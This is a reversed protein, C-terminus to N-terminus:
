FGICDALFIVFVMWSGVAMEWTYTRYNAPLGNTKYKGIKYSRIPVGNSQTM